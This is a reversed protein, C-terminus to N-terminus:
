LLTPFLVMLPSRIRIEVDLAVPAPLGRLKRRFEDNEICLKKENGTKSVFNRTKFVEDGDEDSDSRGHDSNREMYENMMIGGGCILPGFYAAVVGAVIFVRMGTSRQEGQPTIIGCTGGPCASMKCLGTQLCLKEDGRMMCETPAAAEQQETGVVVVCQKDRTPATWWSAISVGFFCIQCLITVLQM